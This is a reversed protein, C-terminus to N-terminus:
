EDNLGKEKALVHLSKSAFEPLARSQTWKKAIDPGPLKSLQPGLLGLLKASLANLWPTTNSFAWGKWTLNEMANVKYGHGKVANSSDAQNYSETRLRRLIDVIPIKVPCVEECAGCFTSA